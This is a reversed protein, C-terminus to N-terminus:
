GGAVGSGQRLRTTRDRDGFNTDTLGAAAPNTTLFLTRFSKQSSRGAIEPYFLSLLFCGRISVSLCFTSRTTGLANVMGAAMPKLVLRDVRAVRSKVNTMGRVDTDDAQWATTRCSGSSPPHDDAGFSLLFYNNVKDALV